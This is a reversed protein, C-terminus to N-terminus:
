QKIWAWSEAYEKTFEGVDKFAELKEIDKEPLFIVLNDQLDVRLFSTINKMPSAYLSENIFQASNEPAILFDIFRTALVTNKSQAPICLNDMWFLGGEEPITYKIKPNELQAKAVDGTWGPMVWVDEKALPETPFYTYQAVHPHQKKLLAAAQHLENQSTTNASFGLHKLAIAIAHRPDDVMGIKGRYKQDFLVKWSQAEVNSVYKSNYALGTTGWIYPTCYDAPLGYPPKVFMEKINKQNTLSSKDLPTLKKTETLTTVLYDPLLVVDFNENLNSIREVSEQTSEVYAIEVAVEAKKEFAEVVKESHLGEWTLFRIREARNISPKHAM